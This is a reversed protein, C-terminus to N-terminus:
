NESGSPLTFYFTSGDGPNSVVWIRGGHREVIKKCIALGIGTGPYDNRGHLRQFIEFIREGYEEDIGTGNDRISFLWENEHREAALHVHPSDEGRFKIANAILNQFLQILQSQDAQVTPLPDHTVRASNEELAFQLNALTLDLVTKCSTPELSKSKTGVRSYALLDKILAQMRNAGDVAFTIFDDADSDLRNKYRRALLQVYSSVM